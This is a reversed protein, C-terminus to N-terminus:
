SSLINFSWKLSPFNSLFFENASTGRETDIVFKLVDFLNTVSCITNYATGIIVLRVLLHGNFLNGLSEFIKDICLTNNSFDAKQFEKLVFINDLNKVNSSRRVWSAIFIDINDGLEHLGIHVTHDVRSLIEGIIVQLVKHELNQRAAVIHVCGIDDM